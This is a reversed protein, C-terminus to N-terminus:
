INKQLHWEYYAAELQYSNEVSKVNHDTEIFSAGIQQKKLQDLYKEYLIQPYQDQPVKLKFEEFSQIPAAKINYKQQLEQLIQNKRMNLQETYSVNSQDFVEQIQEQEIIPNEKQVNQESVLKINELFNLDVEDAKQLYKQLREERPNLIKLEQKPEVEEEEQVLEMTIETDFLPSSFRQQPKVSRLNNNNNAFQAFIKDYENLIPQKSHKKETPPPTIKQVEEILTNPIDQQELKNNINLQQPIDKQDIDIKSTHLTNEVQQLLSETKLKLQDKISQKNNIQPEFKDTTSQEVEINKKAEEFMQQIKPSFKPARDIYKLEILKEAKSEEQMDINNRSLFSVNISEKPNFEIINIKKTRDESIKELKQLEEEINIPKSIKIPTMEIEEDESESESESDIPEQQPIENLNSDFSNIGNPHNIQEELNLISQNIMKKLSEEHSTHPQEIKDIKITQEILNEVKDQIVTPNEKKFPIFKSLTPKEQQNHFETSIKLQKTQDNGLKYYNNSFYLLCEDECIFTSQAIISLATSQKMLNYGQFTPLDDIRSQLIDVAGAVVCVGLIETDISQFKLMIGENRIDQQFSFTNSQQRVGTLFVWSKPVKVFQKLYPIFVIEKVKFNLCNVQVRDDLIAMYRYELSQETGSLVGVTFGDATVNYIKSFYVQSNHNMLSNITLAVQPVRIFPQDFQIEQYQLKGPQLDEFQILGIELQLPINKCTALYFLLLGILQVKM